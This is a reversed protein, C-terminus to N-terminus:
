SELKQLEIEPSAQSVAQCTQVADTRAIPPAVSYLQPRELMFCALRSSCVSCSCIELRHEVQEAARDQLPPAAAFSQTSPAQGVFTLMDAVCFCAAELVTLVPPGAQEILQEEQRLQLVQVLGGLPARWMGPPMGDRARMEIQRM